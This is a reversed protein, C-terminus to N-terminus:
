FLQLYGNKEKQTRDIFNFYNLIYFYTGSPLQEEKQFLVSVNAKGKFANTINNYEKTEWVLRGYRNFIQISNNPFYSIDDIYLRDSMLSAYKKVANFVILECKIIEPTIALRKPSECGSAKDVITGYYTTKDQLLEFENIPNGNNITSFWQPIGGKVILDKLKPSSEICFNQEATGNLNPVTVITVQIPFRVPSECGNLRQSAYYTTNDSLNYNTELASGGTPSIYWNVSSENTNLDSISADNCFRQNSLGTPTPLSIITVVVALRNPSTCGNITQSAYYTTNTVLNTNNSLPSGGTPSLYWEIQTGNVNINSITASNCFTQSTNGTPTPVQILNISRNVPVMCSITNINQSITISYDVLNRLNPDIPISFNSDYINIQNNVGGNVSYNLLYPQIGGTITGTIQESSPLCIASSNAVSFQIPQYNYSYTLSCSPAAGFPLITCSYNGPQDISIEQTTQGNTWSYSVGGDPARLKYNGNQCMLQISAESSCGDFSLYAYGFHATQHCDAVAIEITIYQGIYDSLPVLVTTWNRYSYTKGSITRSNWGPMGDGAFSLYEACADYSGDPKILRTRFFPQDNDPHNPDELIVAYRYVLKSNEQTVLFTRKIVSANAGTGRSDGLLVSTTNGGPFTRPISNIIPDNGSTVFSHQLRGNCLDPPTYNNINRLEGIVGSTRACYTNWNSFNQRSFDLNDCFSQSTQSTIIESPIFINAALYHKNDTFIESKKYLLEKENNTIFDTLKIITSDSDNGNLYASIGDYNIKYFIDFYYKNIETFESTTKVKSRILKKIKRDTNLKRIFQEYIDPKNISDHLENHQDQSYIPVSFNLILVICFPRILTQCYSLIPKTRFRILSNHIKFNSKCYKYFPVLYIAYRSNLFYSNGLGGFILIAIYIMKTM